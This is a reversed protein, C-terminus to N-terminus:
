FYEPCVKMVTRRLEPRWTQAKKQDMTHKGAISSISTEFGQSSSDPRRSDQWCGHLYRTGVLNTPSSKGATMQTLVTDRGFIDARDYYVFSDHIVFPHDGPTLVCTTDYVVGNPVSSVNVSLFAVRDLRP